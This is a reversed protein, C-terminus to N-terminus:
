NDNSQEEKHEVHRLPNKDDLCVIDMMPKKGTIEIGVIQSEENQWVSSIKVQEGKILRSRKDKRVIETTAEVIDGIKFTRM